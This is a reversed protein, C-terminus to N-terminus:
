PASPGGPRALSQVFSIIHPDQWDIAGITKKAIRGNHDIIYSEPFKFTGYRSAVSRDPDRAIPFSLQFQSVFRQLAGADQDVSVGVVTVGLSRMQEAFRRLSPTEEVCPPCWTAWFNLVVVRRRHDRLQFPEGTLTPLTFDPASDGAAPLRAQQTHLILFLAGGVITAPLLLKVLNAKSM